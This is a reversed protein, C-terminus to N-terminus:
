IHTAGIARWRFSLVYRTEETEEQEPHDCTSAAREEGGRSGESARCRDTCAGGSSAGSGGAAGGCSSAGSSLYSLPPLPKAGAIAPAFGDPSPTQHGFGGLAVIRRQGLVCRLDPDARHKRPEPGVRAREAAPHQQAQQEDGERGGEGRCADVQEFHQYVVHEGRVVVVQEDRYRERVNPEGHDTPQHAEDVLVERGPHALSEDRRQPYPKKRVELPQGDSPEVTALEAVDQGAEGAVDGGDFLQHEGADVHRQGIRELEHEERARHEQQVPLERQRRKDGRGCKQQQGACEGAPNLVRGALASSSGSGDGRHGLLVESVDREHLRVVPGVVLHLPEGFFVPGGERRLHEGDSELRQELREAADDLADAHEGDRGDGDVLEGLARDGEPAQQGEQGVQALEVPGDLAEGTERVHHERGDALASRIM